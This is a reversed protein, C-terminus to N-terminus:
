LRIEDGLEGLVLFVFLCVSCVFFGLGFWWWFGCISNGLLMEGWNM